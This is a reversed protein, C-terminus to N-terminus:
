TPPVSFIVDTMDNKRNTTM